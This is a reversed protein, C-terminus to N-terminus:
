DVDLALSVSNGGHSVNKYKHFWPKWLSCRTRHQIVSNQSSIGSFLMEIMRQVFIGVFINNNLFCCLIKMLVCYILFTKSDLEVQVWDGFLYYPIKDNDKLWDTTRSNFSRDFFFFPERNKCKLRSDSSMLWDWERIWLGPIRIRHSQLKFCLSRPGLQMSFVHIVMVNLARPLNQLKLTVYTVLMVLPWSACHLFPGGCRASFLNWM